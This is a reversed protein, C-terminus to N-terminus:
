SRSLLLQPNVSIEKKNTVLSRSGPRAVLAEIVSLSYAADRYCSSPRVVGKCVPWYESQNSRRPLLLDCKNLFHQAAIHKPARKKSEDQGKNHVHSCIAEAVRRILSKGAGTDPWFSSGFM